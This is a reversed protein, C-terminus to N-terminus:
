FMCVCGWVNCEWVHVCVWVDCKWVHVCVCVGVRVCEWVCVCVEKEKVLAHWKGALLILTLLTLDM